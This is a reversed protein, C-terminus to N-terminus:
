GNIHRRLDEWIDDPMKVFVEIVEPDFQRRSWAHIELRADAMSRGRRYPLDSTLSDLSNAVAVIRAGMPIEKGKLGRPYGSGEFSEHHSYVIESAESLFPISKLMQYGRLCHERMIVWEEDDLKGPKLLINYPIAIKGIDHLLAGRAIVLIQERPVGMARAIAITFATVRRSHGEPTGSKLDLADGLAQLTIDHSRELDAMAAQLQDTRAEVLSELNTQYSHNEVNLRHYERLRVILFAAAIIAGFILLWFVPAGPQLLPSSQIGCLTVPGARLQRIVAVESMAGWGTTKLTIAYDM